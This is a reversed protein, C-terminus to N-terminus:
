VNVKLKKTKENYAEIHKVGWQSFIDYRHLMEDELWLFADLSKDGDKIVPTLLHPIGNYPMLEVYKPDILLLRVDEPTAHFLISLLIDDIFVSKGSGTTGAILMHPANRIDIVLPNGQVDIGAAVGLPSKMSKFRDSELVSKLGILPRNMNKASIQMVYEENPDANIEIFCGLAVEFDIKLKNISRISVGPDTKLKFTIALSTANIDVVRAAIGFDNCAQQMEEGLNRVRDGNTFISDASYDRLLSLPPAVYRVLRSENWDKITEKDMM